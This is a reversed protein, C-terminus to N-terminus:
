SYIGCSYQYIKRVNFISTYVLGQMREHKKISENMCAQAQLNDVAELLLTQDKVRYNEFM